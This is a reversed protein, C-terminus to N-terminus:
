RQDRGHRRYRIIPLTIFDSNLQKVLKIKCCTIANCRELLGKMDINLTENHLFSIGIDICKKAKENYQQSNRDQIGQNMEIM